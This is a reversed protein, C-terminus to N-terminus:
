ILTFSQIIRAKEQLDQIISGDMKGKVYCEGIFRYRVQKAPEINTKIVERLIYPVSGGFLVVVLDGERVGTPCLGISGGDATFFCRDLCPFGIDDYCRIGAGEEACSEDERSSYLPSQGWHTIYYHSVRQMLDDDGNDRIMPTSSSSSWTCSVSAPDFLKIYAKNLDDNPRHFFPYQRINQILGIRVGSLTLQFPTSPEDHQFTPITEGAARFQRRLGLTTEAWKAKGILPPIWSPRTSLIPDPQPGAPCHLSQWTRGPAAHVASLIDLCRYRGIWWLTFDVYVQNVTKSYDPRLLAPITQLSHTEESLGIFAFIRDRPDTANLETAELVLDLIKMRPTTTAGTDKEDKIPPIINQLEAVKIWLSPLPQQAVGAFGCRVVDLLWCNALMIAEWSVREHGCHVQVKRSLCAEQIVWVRRFWPYSFFQSLRGILLVFTSNWAGANGPKNQYPLRGDTAPTARSYESFIINIMSVTEGADNGGIGMWVVVSSAKSYIEGMISVQSGREPSDEQNICVADIWLLRSATCGRRLYRLAEELNATISLNHTQSGFDAPDPAGSGGVSVKIQKKNTQDGWCYSLAEFVPTDPADLAITTLHCRVQDGPEGPYLYLLRTERRPRTLAEYLPTSNPPPGKIDEAGVSDPLAANRCQAEIHVHRVYNVWGPFRAMPIIQITNGGRIERVFDRVTPDADSAHWSVVHQRFELSAVVNAQVTKPLVRGNYTSPGSIIADFWTHSGRYGGIISKDDCFGQDHSVITFVISDVSTVDQPLHLELYPRLLCFESVTIDESCAAQYSVAECAKPGTQFPYIVNM